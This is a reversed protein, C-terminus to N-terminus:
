HGPESHRRPVRCSAIQVSDASPAKALCFATQRDYDFWHTLLQVGFRDQVELDKLHMNAADIATLGSFEHRDMFFPVQGLM